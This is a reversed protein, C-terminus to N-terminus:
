KQWWDFKTAFSLIDIKYDEEGFGLEQNIMKKM